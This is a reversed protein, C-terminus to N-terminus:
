RFENIQHNGHAAPTNKRNSDLWSYGYYKIPKVLLMTEKSIIGRINTLDNNVFSTLNDLDKFSVAIVLDYIGLSHAVFYVAPHDALAQTVQFSYAPDMKIGIKAWGQYGFQVMNPVAIVKFVGNDRMEKIRRQITRLGIKLHSSLTQSSQFGNTILFRLLEQDLGDM